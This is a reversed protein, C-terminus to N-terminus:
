GVQGRDCLMSRSKTQHDLDSVQGPIQLAGLNGSVPQTGTVWSLRAQHRSQWTPAPAVWSRGCEVHLRVTVV